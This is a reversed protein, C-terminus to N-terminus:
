AQLRRRRSRVGGLLLLLAGFRWGSGGSGATSCSLVGDTGDCVYASHQVEDDSLEGDENMDVGFEVKNGGAECNPGAPEPTIRSQSTKGPLGDEGNCVYSLETTEEESISGDFDEDVGVVLKTGGNACNEGPPEDHIEILQQPNCYAEDEGGACDVFLDCEWEPPIPTGDDCYFAEYDCQEEGEDSGDPCDAFFDCAFIEPIESGDDCTFMPYDCDVEDEGDPCDVFMDCQWWGSILDGNNCEFPPVVLRDCAEPDDTCDAIWGDDGSFESVRTYYGPAGPEACGAGFSVVGALVFDGADNNVMLPGGSDGYCSDKGGEDYGACMMNATYEIGYDALEGLGNECAEEDLIPVDVQQLTDPSEFDETNLVGFGIVRSLVGAATLTAAQDPLVSGAIPADSAPSALHLLAIDGDMTKDSYGVNVIIDDIPIRESVESLQHPAVTVDVLEPDVITEVDYDTVCHGATVVWQPAILTGGCILAYAPDSEEAYLLSVMWPYAGAPADEGGVIRPADVAPHPLPRAQTRPRADATQTVFVTSFLTCATVVLRRVPLAM